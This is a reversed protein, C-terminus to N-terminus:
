QEAAGVEVVEELANTDVHAVGGGVGSAADENAAVLNYALDEFAALPEVFQFLFDNFGFGAVFGDPQGNLLLDFFGRGAM